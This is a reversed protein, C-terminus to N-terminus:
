IPDLDSILWRNGGRDLSVKISSATSSPADRGVVVSASHVLNEVHEASYSLLAVTGDRAAQVPENAAADDARANAEQWSLVGAVVALALALALVPLVGFAVMWSRSRQRLARRLWGGFIVTMSRLGRVPSRRTEPPDSYQVESSVEAETDVVTM